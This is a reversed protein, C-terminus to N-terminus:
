NAVQVMAFRVVKDGLKFGKQSIVKNLLSFNREIRVFHVQGGLIKRRDNFFDAALRGTCPDILHEEQFCLDTKLVFRMAYGLDSVVKIEGVGGM